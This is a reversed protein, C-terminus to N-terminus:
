AFFNFIIAYINGWTTGWVKSFTYAVIILVGNPPVMMVCGAVYVVLFVLVLGTPDKKYQMM